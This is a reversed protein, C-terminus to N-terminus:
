TGLALEAMVSQLDGRKIPGAAAVCCNTPHLHKRAVRQVDTPTVAAFLRPLSALNDDPLQYREASIMYSARRSARQFSLAFSGVVYDKAVALEEEGVPEDQIRRIERLFGEIATRVNAPSTGIYATFAGPYLGATGHINANVTYALGLEDRLRHSIRNTFGPGTGLVHDMVVLAPYDPDNRRIGLHGLYVHVQERPAEFVDTRVGRGPLVPEPYPLDEGSTWRALERDLLARVAQPDVDGCVAIIARKALWYDRHFGVVHKREIRAVSEHTGHSPKGLWHDGYVLRKFV